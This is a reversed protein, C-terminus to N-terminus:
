DTCKANADKSKGYRYIEKKEKDSLGKTERVYVWMYLTAVMSFGAFMFFVGSPGLM